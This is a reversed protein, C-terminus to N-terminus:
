DSASSDELSTAPADAALGAGPKARLMAAKIHMEQVARELKASRTREQLERVQRLTRVTTRVLITSIVGGLFSFLAVLLVSSQLTRGPYFWVDAQHEHNCVVFLLVYIFLASFLLVKTWIKIKLWLNVM